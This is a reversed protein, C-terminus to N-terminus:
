ATRQASVRQLLIIVVSIITHQEYWKRLKTSQIERLQSIIKNGGSEEALQRPNWVIRVAMRQWHVLSVVKYQFLVCRM